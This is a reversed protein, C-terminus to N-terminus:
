SNSFFRRRVGHAQGVGRELPGVSVHVERRGSSKITLRSRHRSPSRAGQKRRQGDSHQWECLRVLLCCEQSLAATAVPLQAGASVRRAPASRSAGLCSRPAARCRAMSTTDGAARNCDRAGIASARFSRKEFRDPHDTHLLGIRHLRPISLNAVMVGSRRQCCRNSFKSRPNIRSREARSCRAGSLKLSRSSSPRM